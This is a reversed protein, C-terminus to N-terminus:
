DQFGSTTSLRMLVRTERSRVPECILFFFFHMRSVQAVYVLGNLSDVAVCFTAGTFYESNKPWGLDLRFLPDEM